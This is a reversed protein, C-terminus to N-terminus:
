MYTDGSTNIIITHTLCSCHWNKRYKTYKLNQVFKDKVSIDIINEHQGDTWRNMVVTQIHLEEQMKFPIEKFSQM